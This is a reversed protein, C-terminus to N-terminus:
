EVVLGLIAGTMAAAAVLAWVVQKQFKRYEENTM